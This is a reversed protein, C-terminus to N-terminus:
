RRRETSKFLLSATKKSDLSFRKRLLSFSADLRRRQIQSLFFFYSTLRSFKSRTSRPSISSTFEGEASLWGPPYGWRAMGDWIWSGVESSRESQGGGDLAARLEESLVGPKFRELYEM